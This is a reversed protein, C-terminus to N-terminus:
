QNGSWTDTMGNYSGLFIGGFSSISIGSDNFTAVISLGPYLTFINAVKILEGYSPSIVQIIGSRKNSNKWFYAMLYGLDGTIKSSLKFDYKSINQLTILDEVKGYDEPGTVLSNVKTHNLIDYNKIDTSQFIALYISLDPMYKFVNISEDSYVKYGLTIFTFQLIDLNYYESIIIDYNGSSPILEEPGTITVIKGRSTSDQRSNRFYGDGVIEVKISKGNEVLPEARFYMSESNYDADSPISVHFRLSGIKNLNDNQVVGKLKTVLCNEM